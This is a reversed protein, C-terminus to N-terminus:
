VPKVGIHLGRGTLGDEDFHWKLGCARFADGYETKEFLGMVHHEMFHETKKPTGVLFHLDFISLIGDMKSTNIRALKLEPQDIFIAHVSDPHWDAPAFWPEVLLVGGPKLHRAMCAIAQNLDQITQMYGIASFLCTVVDFQNHLDFTRMDGLHFPMGPNRQRAYQILGEDLDLGEAQYCEKLHVLHKGTGCAVDLLSGTPHGFRAATAMVKRSEGEYDKDAYCRDYLDAQYM